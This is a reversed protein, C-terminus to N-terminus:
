LNFIYFYWMKGKKRPYEGNWTFIRHNPFFSREQSYECFYLELFFSVDWIMTKIEEKNMLRDEKIINFKVTLLYRTCILLMYYTVLFTWWFLVIGLYCLQLVVNQKLKKLESCKSISDFFAVHFCINLVYFELFIFVNKKM